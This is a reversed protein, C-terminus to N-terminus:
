QTAQEKTAAAKERAELKALYKATDGKFLDTCDSCCLGYAKGEHDARALYKSDREFKEGSVPCIDNVLQVEAPIGGTPTMGAHAHDHGAHTHGAHSHDHGAHDHGAHSEAAGTQRSVADDKCGGMGVLLAVMVLMMMVHRTVNM